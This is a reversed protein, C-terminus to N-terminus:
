VVVLLHEKVLLSRCICMLCDKSRELVCLTYGICVVYCNSCCVAVCMCFFCMICVYGCMMRMCVHKVCDRVVSDM